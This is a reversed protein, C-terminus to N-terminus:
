YANRHRFGRWVTLWLIKVDFWLSWNAIYYLDHELRRRISTNGRWGNVQAWGTIGSKVRHRQQYGPISQCFREVFARREPRPGVLSMEGKLVNILQPLEDLSWQRLIRGLSTCRADARAAWVPGTGQEADVRMSRFKIMEFAEGEHGTRPQRYFVPGPSTLKILVAILAMLPSFIVLALSAFVVDLARKAIRHFGHHPNERLSLFCTHEVELMRVRMGALHPIDPVLQVEILLDDLSRYINCLEGYRSLPLAVFVHDVDRQRVISELQSLEGLWTGDIRRVHRADDVYGVLELGTWNNRCIMHLVRRALRGSGVVLVRSHNLGRNRLRQLVHWLVRRSIALACPLVIGFTAWSLRSVELAQQCYIAAIMLLLVLGSGRAIVGLERPLRRLRHIDYFGASRYALASILLLFPLTGATQWSVSARPTSQLLESLAHTSFWAAATVTLDCVLFVFGLKNGHRRYM